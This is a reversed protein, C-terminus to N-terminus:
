HRYFNDTNGDSRIISGAEIINGSPFLLKGGVAGIRINLIRAVQVTAMLSNMFGTAPLVDDNLFLLWKSTPSVATAAINNAVSYAVNNCIHIHRVAVKGSHSQLLNLMTLTDNFCGNDAVIIEYIWSCNSQMLSQVISQVRSPQNYTLIIISIDIKDLHAEYSGKSGRDRRLLLTATSIPVSHMIFAISTFLCLVLLMVAGTVPLHTSRCVLRWLRPASKGMVLEDNISIVSKYTCLVHVCPYCYLWIGIM